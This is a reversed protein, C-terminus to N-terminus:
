STTKIKLITFLLPATKKESSNIQETMFITPNLQKCWNKVKETEDEGGLHGPYAMITIIGGAMILDIASSLALLTSSAQTIVSKDSGPLYGLNFMIAKIKGHYQSPIQKTIHSHSTNFLTCNNVTLENEIKSQASLIAQQQIDFGFVKGQQGVQSALFLTDHGNGVTTDIVVDGTCVHQQIFQHAQETLSIRKNM